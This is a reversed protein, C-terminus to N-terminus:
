LVLVTDLQAFVLTFGASSSGKLLIAAGAMFFLKCLNVNRQSFLASPFHARQLRSVVIIRKSVCM